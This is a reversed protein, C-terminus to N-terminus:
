LDTITKLEFAFNIASSFRDFDCYVIIQFYRSKTSTVKM